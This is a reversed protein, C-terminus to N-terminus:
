MSRSFVRGVEIQSITELVPFRIAVVFRRNQRLVNYSEVRRDRDIHAILYAPGKGAALILGEFDCVWSEKLLKAAGFGMVLELITALAGERVAGAAVVGKVDAAIVRPHVDARSIL